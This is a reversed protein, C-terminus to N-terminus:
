HSGVARGGARARSRWPTASEYAAAIRLARSDLWPLAAVQLGFPLGNGTMGCPLSVVPQRTLNFVRTFRPLQADSWAATTPVELSAITPPVIPLTPCVFADVEEQSALIDRALRERRDLLMSLEEPGIRLGEEVRRASDAGFDEPAERFRVEHVIAAEARSIRRAVEIAEDDGPVALSITRAGLRSLEALAAEFGEAIEADAGRYGPHFGLAVGELSSRDPAVASLADNAALGHAAVRAPDSLIDLLVAADAVTRTLVGVHDLSRSLPFMGATSVRGYTPKLGVVGCLSAPIRVSGGTDSGLAAFGVGVAVAAASGGSSGGATRATDFPNRTPGFHPNMGSSGLAFEHLNTKGILLGGARRIRSWAESDNIAVRQPRKSGATTHLGQVDYLDKVSVGLGHLLSRRGTGAIETGAELASSLYSDTRVDIFANILPEVVALRHITAEAIAVTSLQRRDVATAVASIPAFLAEDPDMRAENGPSLHWPGLDRLFKNAAMRTRSPRITV